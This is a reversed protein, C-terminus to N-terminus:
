QAPAAVARPVTLSASSTMMSTRISAHSVKLTTQQTVNAPEVWQCVCDTSYNDTGVTVPSRLYWNFAGTGGGAGSQSTTSTSCQHLHQASLKGPGASMYYRSSPLSLPGAVPLCDYLPAATCRRDTCYSTLEVGLRSTPDNRAVTLESVAPQHVSDAVALRTATDRLIAAQQEYSFGGPQMGATAASFSDLNHRSSDPFGHTPPLYHHSSSSSRQYYPACYPSSGAPGLGIAAAAAAAPLAHQSPPYQMMASASVSSDHHQQHHHRQRLLLVDHLSSRHRDVTLGAVVSSSPTRDPSLVVRASDVPAAALYGAAHRAPASRQLYDRSLLLQQLEMMSCDGDRDAGSHSRVLEVTTWRQFSLFVDTAAPFIDYSLLYTLRRFAGIHFM